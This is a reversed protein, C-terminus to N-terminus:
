ETGGGRLAFKYDNWVFEGLIGQKKLQPIYSVQRLDARKPHAKVRVLDPFDEGLRNCSQIEVGENRADAFTSEASYAGAMHDFTVKSDVVACESGTMFARITTETDERTLYKENFYHHPHPAEPRSDRVNLLTEFRFAVCQAPNTMRALKPQTRQRWALSRNWASVIGINPNAELANLFTGIVDYPGKGFRIDDDVRIVVDAGLQDWAYAFGSNVAPAPGRKDPQRVWFLAFADEQGERGPFDPPEDYNHVVIIPMASSMFDGNGRLSQITKVLGDPRKHSPIVIAAQM